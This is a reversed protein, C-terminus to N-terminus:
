KRKKEDENTLDLSRGGIRIWLDNVTTLGPPGTAEFEDGEDILLGHSIRDLLHVALIEVAPADGDVLGLGRAATVVSVSTAAFATAVVVVEAVAPITTSATSATM